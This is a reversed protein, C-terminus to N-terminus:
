ILPRSSLAHRLARAAVTDRRSFAFETYTFPGPEDRLRGRARLQRALDVPLRRGPWLRPYEVSPHMLTISWRHALSRESSGTIVDLDLSAEHELDCYPVWRVRRDTVMLYTRTKGGDEVGGLETIDQSRGVAIVQEDADLGRRLAADCTAFTQELPVM